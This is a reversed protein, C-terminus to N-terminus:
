TTYELTIMLNNLGSLPLAVGRARYTMKLHNVTYPPGRLWSGKLHQILGAGVHRITDVGIVAICPQLTSSRGHGRLPPDMELVLEEPGDLIFRAENSFNNVTGPTAGLVTEWVSDGVTPWYLRFPHPEGSSARSTLVHELGTRHVVYSRGLGDAEFQSSKPIEGRSRATMLSAVKLLLSTADYCGDPVTVSMREEFNYNNPVESFVFYGAGETIRVWPIDGVFKFVRLRVKDLSVGDSLYVGGHEDFDGNTLTLLPM